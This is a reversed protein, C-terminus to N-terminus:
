RGESDKKDLDLQQKPLVRAPQLPANPSLAAVPDEVGLEYWWRPFLPGQCVIAVAAIEQATANLRYGLTVRTGVPVGPILQQADFRVAQATPYNATRLDRDLKKLQVVVLDEILLLFRGAGEPRSTRKRRTGLVPAAKVRARQRTPELIKVDKADGLRARAEEVHLAHIAQHRFSSTPRSFAPSVEAKWRGVGAAILGYFQDHFPELIAKAEEESLIGDGM